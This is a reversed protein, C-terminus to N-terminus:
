FMTSDHQIMNLISPPKCVIDQLLYQAIGHGSVEGIDGHNRQSSFTASTQARPELSYDVEIWTTFPKSASRHVMAAQSLLAKGNKM